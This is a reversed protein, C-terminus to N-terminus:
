GTYGRVLTLVKQMASMATSTSKDGNTLIAFTVARGAGDTTYGALCKVGDLTGTKAWVKGATATACLDHELTGTRCAVPLSARLSTAASSKAAYTLLAVEARTTAIDDISLGSGDYSRSNTVGAADSTATITARGEISLLQEAYFNVSYLLATRVIAALTVSSHSTFYHPMSVHRAVVSSGVIGVGAAKLQARLYALNGATPSTLYSATSSLRDGAVPFPSLPAVDGPIYSSKWGTRVRTTPLGGIDLVLRGTVKRVGADHLRKALRVIDAGYLTPDGSSRVVLDARLVGRSPGKTSGITTTLRRNPQNLLVPLTTFLKETSAPRLGYGGAIDVVRGKGAVDVVASWAHATSTAMRARVGNTLSADLTTTRPAAASTPTTAAVSPSAAILPVAAALLAVVIRPMPM